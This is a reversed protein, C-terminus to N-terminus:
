ATENYFRYVVGKSEQINKCSGGVEALLWWMGDSEVDEM